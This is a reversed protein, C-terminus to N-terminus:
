DSDYITTKYNDFATTPVSANRKFIGHKKLYKTDHKLLNNVNKCTLNINLDNFKLNKRYYKSNLHM